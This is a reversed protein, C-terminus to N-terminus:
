EENSGPELRSFYDRVYTKLHPPIYGRDLAESASESYEPLVEEYPVLSPNNIGPLNADGQRTEVQGGEGQQGQILEREGQEGSPKYPQYVMDGPSNGQGGGSDAQDPNVNAAADSQGQGLNDANSGGGAPQQGQGQQGQGQQGEGQQGQGQQGQGQQGEGQQAQQGEGQQGQGQQGQGQQAQQGEGAQAVQQRGDQIESLARQTAQQDALERQAQQVNQSAQQLQEAAQQTNGEQLAQAADSLNQATQPDGSAMQAAQDALQEALQQREEESMSDLGEALEELQEAARDLDAREQGPASESLSELNRSMRELAARRADSEPDLGQQLQTEAASLDALAEERDGPNEQLREQLEALQQELREREEPTLTEDEAIQEEIEELDEVVEELTQEVAQQEALIVDQPNPLFWLAMGLALPLVGLLAARRDFPLPLNRPQVAQVSAAADQQQLDTLESHMHTDHLELATVLRERLDFASDIRRAIRPLPLPRIFLYSLVVLFWLALPLLAWLRVHPIPVLRGVLLVLLFLISGVWLSRSSFLLTDGARLRRGLRNLHRRITQYTDQHETM